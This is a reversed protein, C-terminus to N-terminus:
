EKPRKFYYVLNNTVTDLQRGGVIPLVAVLEWGYEGFKTLDIKPEWETMLGEKPLYKRRTEVTQYEWKQM